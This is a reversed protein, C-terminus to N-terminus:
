MGPMSAIRHIIQQPFSCGIEQRTSRDLYIYRSFHGSAYVWQIMLTCHTPGYDEGVKPNRNQSLDQVGSDCDSLSFHSHGQTSPARFSVSILIGHPFDEGCIVANQIDPDHPHHFIYRTSFLNLSRNPTNENIVTKMAQRPRVPAAEKVASCRNLSIPM